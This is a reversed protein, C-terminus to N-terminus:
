RDNRFRVLRLCMQVLMMGSLFGASAACVSGIEGSFIGNECSLCYVCAGVACLLPFIFVAFSALVMQPPTLSVSSQGMAEFKRMEENMKGRTPCEQLPCASCPDSSRESVCDEPCSSWGPFTELSWFEPDAGGTRDRPDRQHDELDKSSMENRVKKIPIYACVPFRCLPM